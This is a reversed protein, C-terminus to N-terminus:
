VFSSRNKHRGVGAGGVPGVCVGAHEREVDDAACEWVCYTPILLRENCIPYRAISLPICVQIFSASLYVYAKNSTILSIASWAAVPLIQTQFVEADVKSSKLSPLLNTTRSAHSHRWFCRIRFTWSRCCRRTSCFRNYLVDVFDSATDVQRFCFHLCLRVISCSCAIWIVIYFLSLNSLM